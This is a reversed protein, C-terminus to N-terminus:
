LFLYDKISNFAAVIDAVLVIVVLVLYDKISNFTATVM